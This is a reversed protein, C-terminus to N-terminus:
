KILSRIIYFKIKKSGNKKSKLPVLWFVIRQPPLFKVEFVGYGTPYDIGGEFIRNCKLIRLCIKCFAMFPSNYKLSWLAYESCTPYHRCNSPLLPSILKQYFLILNQGLFITFNAILLVKYFKM